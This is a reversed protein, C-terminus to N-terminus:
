WEDGSSVVALPIAGMQSHTGEGQTGDSGESGRGLRVRLVSWRVVGQPTCSGRTGCLTQPHRRQNAVGEARKARRPKAGLKPVGFGSCFEPVGRLALGGIGLFGYTRFM